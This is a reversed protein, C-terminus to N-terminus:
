RKRTHFAALTRSKQCNRHNGEQKTRRCTYSLFHLGCVWGDTYGRPRPAFKKLDRLPKSRNSNDDAKTPTTSVLKATEDSYMQSLSDFFNDGGMIDPDEPATETYFDKLSSFFDETDVPRTADWIMTDALSVTPESKAPAPAPEPTPSEEKLLGSASSIKRTIRGISDKKKFAASEDLTSMKERSKCRENEPTEDSIWNTSFERFFYRENNLYANWGLRVSPPLSVARQIGSAKEKRHSTKAYLSNAYFGSTLKVPKVANNRFRNIFPLPSAYKSRLVEGRIKAFSTM